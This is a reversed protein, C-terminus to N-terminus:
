RRTASSCTSDPQTFNMTWFAEAAADPGPGAAVGTARPESAQRWALGGALAALGVGGFLIQRRNM